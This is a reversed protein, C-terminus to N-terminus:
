ESGDNLTLSRIFINSYVSSAIVTNHPTASLCQFDMLTFCEWSLNGFLVFIIYFPFGLKIFYFCLRIWVSLCCTQSNEIDISVFYFYVNYCSQMVSTIKTEIDSNIFANNLQFFHSRQQGRKEKVFNFSNFTDNIQYYQVHWCFIKRIIHRDLM